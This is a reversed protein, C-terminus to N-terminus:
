SWKCCNIDVNGEHEVARKLERALDMYKDIKKNEKMKMRYNAPIVLDM